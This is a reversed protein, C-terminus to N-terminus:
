PLDDDEIALRAPKYGSLEEQELGRIYAAEKLLEETPKFGTTSRALRLDFEEETILEAMSQDFAKQNSRDWGDPDYVIVDVTKLWDTSSKKITM